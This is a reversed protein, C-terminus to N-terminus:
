APRPQFLEVVIGDPDRMYLAWGGKNPGADLYTPESIFQVHAAKLKAFLAQIDDVNYCIHSSGPNNPTLNQPSGRPHQYEILELCLDSGPIRLYADRSIADPFGVEARWYSHIIEPRERLVEFGLLDRYFAVTRSLDSVTFSAHNTGIIAAM